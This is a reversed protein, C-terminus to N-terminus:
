LSRADDMAGRIQEIMQEIICDLNPCHADDVARAHERLKNAEDLTMSINIMIEGKHASGNM